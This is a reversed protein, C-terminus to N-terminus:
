AILEKYTLAGRAVIRCSRRYLPSGGPGWVASLRWVYYLPYGVFTAMVGGRIASPTRGNGPYYNGM